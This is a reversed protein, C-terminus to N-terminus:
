RRLAKNLVPKEFLAQFRRCLGKQRGDNRLAPGAVCLLGCRPQFSAAVWAICLELEIGLDKPGSEQNQWAVGVGERDDVSITGDPKGHLVLHAQVPGAVSCSM